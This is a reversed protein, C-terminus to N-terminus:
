SWTRYVQAVGSWVPIGTCQLARVGVHVHLPTNMYAEAFYM